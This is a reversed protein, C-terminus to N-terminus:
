IDKQTIKQILKDKITILDRKELKKIKDCLEAIKEQQDSVISEYGGRIADGNRIGAYVMDHLLVDRGQVVSKLQEIKLDKLALEATNQDILQREKTEVPVSESIIKIFTKIASKVKAKDKKIIGTMDPKIHDMKVILKELQQQNSFIFGELQRDQFYNKVKDQYLTMFPVNQSFAFISAHLSSVIVYSMQSIVSHLELPSLTDLMIANSMDFPLSTMFSADHNYHTFPMFVKKHPIRNIIEVLDPAVILADPVLHIGVIIEEPKNELGPINYKGSSLVTTTCPLVKVTSRTFKELEEAEMSSRASVYKYSSLYDLTDGGSVGVSNLIYGGKVRFNDYFVDGVPRLLQGGGIIIMSYDKESFSFPNIIEAEVGEKTLMQQLAIGIAIDGTNLSVSDYLLGVRKSKM